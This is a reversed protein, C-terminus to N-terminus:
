TINFVLGAFFFTIKKNRTESINEFDVNAVGTSASTCRGQWHAGLMHVHGKFVARLTV